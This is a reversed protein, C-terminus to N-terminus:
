NLRLMRGVIKHVGEARSIIREAYTEVEGLARLVLSATKVSLSLEESAQVIVRRAEIVYEDAGDLGPLPSTRLAGVVLWRGEEIREVLVREGRALAGDLVAAHVALDREVELTQGFAEVRVRGGRISRIRATFLSPLARAAEEEV